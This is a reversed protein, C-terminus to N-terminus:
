GMLNPSWDRSWKGDSAPPTKLLEHTLAPFLASAQNSLSQRARNVTRIDQVIRPSVELRQQLNYHFFLPSHVQITKIIFPQKRTPNENEPPSKM